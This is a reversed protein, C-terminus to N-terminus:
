QWPINMFNLDQVEPYSALKDYWHPQMPQRFLTKADYASFIGVGGQINSISQGTHYLEENGTFSRRYDFLYQDGILLKFELPREFAYRIVDPKIPINESLYIWWEPRELNISLRNGAEGSGNLAVGVPYTLSLFSTDTQSIEVYHFLCTVEYFFVDPLSIFDMRTMNSMFMARFDQLSFLKCSSSITEGTQKKVIMLRCESDGVIEVDAEYVYFGDQTFVGPEKEMTKPVMLIPYGVRQDYRYVELWVDLSDPHYQSVTVTEGTVPDTISKSIRIYHRSDNYNLIGYVVAQQHLDNQPSFEVKCSLGTLLMLVFVITYKIERKM